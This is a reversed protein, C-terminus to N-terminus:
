VSRTIVDLEKFLTYSLTVELGIVVDEMIIELTEAEEIYNVYTAPLGELERKGKYLGYGKYRLDSIRYGDNIRVQYAPIRFDGNGFAQYEQPITDISFTRDKDDPNPSFGRDMFVIKNSGRYKNIRKGWYLHALYGDRIVQMVYSTNKGQM